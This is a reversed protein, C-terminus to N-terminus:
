CANGGDEEPVTEHTHLTAEGIEVNVKSAGRDPVVDQSSCLDSDVKSNKVFNHFAFTTFLLDARTYVEGNVRCTNQSIGGVGCFRSM